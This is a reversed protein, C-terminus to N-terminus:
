SCQNLIEVSRKYEARVNEIYAEDAPAKGGRLMETMKSSVEQLKTLGVNAAVGKLTHAARFAEEYNKEQLAKDLNEFSPDDLFKFAFKRILKESFLRKLTGDFDADLATYCERITM